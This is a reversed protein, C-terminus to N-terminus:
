NLFNMLDPTSYQEIDQLCSRIRGARDASLVGAVNEMYKILVDENSIPRVDAGRNVAERHGHLSGDNLEVVVEGSYYRPFDAAPDAVCSVKEALALTIPDTYASEDLASLNFRGFRLGTAVSYPISFQADYSNAPRKKSSVPECVTKMVGEPVKATIRRIDDVHFADRIIAAADACAHTFHCAPMPKVAINLTEWKSGLSSVIEGIDRLECDAGLHSKYLGFRGEYTAKPGIFGHKAMTVATIAANAAWGPHMRKTWAGDQLFELSGSAMSLVIGQAHTLQDASLKRLWAIAVTCAFAGILGTPHFGVQHFGGKAVSGLRTAVELGVVYATLLDRGSARSVAGQSLVAPLVSATAHIVGEPHTDDYDLGHVLVGNMVAADRPSLSIGMGIVPVQQDGASLERSAALSLKAFDYQTSAFAIGLADIMLYKARTRVEQPISEFSIDLAKESISQSIYAYSNGTTM